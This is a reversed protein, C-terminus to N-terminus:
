LLDSGKVGFIDKLLQMKADLIMIDVDDDTYDPSDGRDKGFRADLDDMIKKKEADFDRINDIGLRQRLQKFKEAILDKFDEKRSWLSYSARVNKLEQRVPLYLESDLKECLEEEIGLDSIKIM